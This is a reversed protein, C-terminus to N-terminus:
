FESTHTKGSGTQGYVVLACDFGELLQPALHSVSGDYVSSQTATEGYVRDYGFDFEGDSPSEVHLTSANHQVAGGGGSSGTGGDPGGVTCCDTSRRARELDNLPRLRLSVTVPSPTLPEDIFLEAMKKHQRTESDLCTRKRIADIEM